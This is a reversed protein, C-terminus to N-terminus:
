PHATRLVFSHGSWSALGNSSTLWGLFDTWWWLDFRYSTLGNDEDVIWSALDYRWLLPSLIALGSYCFVAERSKAEFGLISCVRSPWIHVKALWMPDWAELQHREAEGREISIFRFGEV